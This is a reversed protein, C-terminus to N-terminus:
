IKLCVFLLIAAGALNAINVLSAVDVLSATNVLGAMNELGAERFSEGKFWNQELKLYRSKKM